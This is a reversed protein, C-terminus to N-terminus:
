AEKLLEKPPSGGRSSDGSTNAERLDMAQPIIATSSSGAPKNMDGLFTALTDEMKPSM